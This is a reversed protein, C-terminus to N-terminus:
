SGDLTIKKVFLQTEWTANEKVNDLWIKYANTKERILLAHGTRTMARLTILTMFVHCHFYIV